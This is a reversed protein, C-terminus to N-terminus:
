NRDTIKKLLELLQNQEEGSLPSLIKLAFDESHQKKLSVAEQGAASLGVRVIRRDSRCRYREVLGRDVLKNFIGTLTSMPLSKEESIEKISPHDKGDLALLVKLDNSSLSCLPTNVSASKEDSYLDEILSTFLLILQDAKEKM